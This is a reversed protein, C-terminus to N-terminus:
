PHWETKLTTDLQFFVLSDVLKGNVGIGAPLNYRALLPTACNVFKVNRFQIAEAPAILGVRFNEFVMNELLLYKGTAYFAPGAFSSDARLVMGNGNIHLSDKNIFITDTIPVTNLLSDQISLTDPIITILNNLQVEAASKVPQAVKGENGLGERNQWWMWVLAAALLLCIVTLVPVASSKNKRSSTAAVQKEEAKKTEAIAPENKKVPKTAKHNQPTKPNRVLVVTINDKGGAENAADILLQTKEELSKKATLVSVMKESDVLDTLGDSCLLLMDGPLFPSRGTDVYDKQNAIHPDFGLARNIENRKPHRMAEKESIKKNDELFGVFSHDKTLKVLSRDRLLYLRTDGVHAYFCENQKADVLALTLVCAMKQRQPNNVRERYIADNAEIIAQRMAAPPEPTDANLKQLLTDRAIQAAVEGGEYGGVGDIVCALIYRGDQVEQAIFADENNDRMKGTDTGGYFHEAM